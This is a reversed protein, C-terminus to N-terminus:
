SCASCIRTRIIMVITTFFRDSFKIVVEFLDCFQNITGDFHIGLQKELTQKFQLCLAEECDNSILFYAYECDNLATKILTTKGVRKRGMLVTFVASRRSQLENKQLISIEYERDYFRM